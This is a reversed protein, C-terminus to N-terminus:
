RAYSHQVYGATHPYNLHDHILELECPGHVVLVALGSWALRRCVCGFVGYCHCQIGSIDPLYWLNFLSLLSVKQIIVSSPCFCVGFPPM